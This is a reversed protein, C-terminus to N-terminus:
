NYFQRICIKCYWNTTLDTGPVPTREKLDSFHLSQLPSILDTLMNCKSNSLIFVILYRRILALSHHRFHFVPNQFVFKSCVTGNRRLFISQVLPFSIQLVQKLDLCAPSQVTIAFHKNKWTIKLFDIFLPRELVVPIKTTGTKSQLLRGQDKHQKQCRKGAEIM